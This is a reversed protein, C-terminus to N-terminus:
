LSWSRRLLDPVSQPESRGLVVYSLLRPLGAFMSAFCTRILSGACFLIGPNGIEPLCMTVTWARAVILDRPSKRRGRSLRGTGSLPLRECLSEDTGGLTGLQAPPKHQLSGGVPDPM